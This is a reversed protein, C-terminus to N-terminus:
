RDEIRKVALNTLALETALGEIRHGLGDIQTLLRREIPGIVEQVAEFVLRRTDPLIVDRHFEALVALTLPQDSM